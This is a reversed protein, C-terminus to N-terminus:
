DRGLMRLLTQDRHLFHHKLTALAHLGVLIVLVWSLYYHMDGVIDEPDPLEALLAPVRFWSFVEVPMGQATPILYGTFAIAFILWLMALHVLRSTNKQWPKLEPSRIPRRVLVRHCFWFLIIPFLLMGFSKHYYPALYYWEDYYNLGTMYLGLVFLTFVLVFVGWHVVILVWAFGNKGDPRQLRTWM